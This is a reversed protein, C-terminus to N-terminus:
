SADFGKPFNTKKIRQGQKTKHISGWLMVNELPYYASIHLKLKPVSLRALTGMRHPGSAELTENGTDWKGHASQHCKM